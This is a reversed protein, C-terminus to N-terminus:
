IYDDDAAAAVDAQREGQGQGFAAVPHADVVDVGGLDVLDSRAAHREELVPSLLQQSHQERGAAELEGGVRAHELAGADHDQDDPRRDVLEHVRRYAYEIPDHILENRM